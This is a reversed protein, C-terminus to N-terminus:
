ENIENIKYIKKDGTPLEYELETDSVWKPKFYWLPETTTAVLNQKKTFLNHIYLETGIGQARRQAKEEETLEVIGYWVNGPQVTILGKELNLADGGLVDQPAPLIDVKWTDREIRAFGLCPAGACIDGWFYSGSKTWDKLGLSGDLTSDIKLISLQSLTFSDERTLQNKFIYGINEPIESYSQVLAIYVEMPDVRFDLDYYAIFEKPKGALLLIIKGDGNYDYRWLEARFGPEQRSLKHNFNFFRILYVGCKYVEVPHYKKFVNDVQFTNKTTNTKKDSVRIEVIAEVDGLSRKKGKIEYTAIENDELCSSHAIQNEPPNQFIKIPKKLFYYISAATLVALVVVIIIISKKKM